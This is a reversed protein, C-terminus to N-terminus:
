MFLPPSTNLRSLGRYSQEDGIATVLTQMPHILETILVVMTLDIERWPIDYAYNHSIEQTTFPHVKNWTRNPEHARPKQMTMTSLPYNLSRGGVLPWRLLSWGLCVTGSLPVECHGTVKYIVTKYVCPYVAELFKRPSHNAMSKRYISKLGKSKWPNIIM